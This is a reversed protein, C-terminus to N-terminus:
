IRWYYTTNFQLDSVNFYLLTQNGRFDSQGLSPSTGFYIDYSTAGGGNSWTPTLRVPQNTAGNAPFPNIPQDPIPTPPDETTFSWIPGLTGGGANRAEIRWYYATNYELTGPNFIPATRTGRREFFGPTPKTGFFVTYSDPVGVRPAPPEPEWTMISDVPVDGAGNTPSPNQVIGPPFTPFGGTDFRWVTGTTVGGFDDISDVRWFYTTTPDLTIPGYFSENIPPITLRNGPGPAAVPNLYVNYTTVSGEWSLILDLPNIDSSNNPPFPNFARGGADAATRFTWQPGQTVGAQNGALLFWNHRSEGTLNEQPTYSPENALEPHPPVAVSPRWIVIGYVTADPPDWTFTKDVPVPINGPPDDVPDPNSPAAPPVGGGVPIAAYDDEFFMQSVMVRLSYDSIEPVFLHGALAPTISGSWNLPLIFEYFGQANTSSQGGGASATLVVGSVPTVLDPEYVTGSIYVSEQMPVKPAPSLEPEDLALALLATQGAFPDNEGQAAINWSLEENGAHATSSFWIAILCLILIAPFVPAIERSGFLLRKVM